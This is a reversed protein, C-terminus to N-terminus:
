RLLYRLGVGLTLVSRQIKLNSNEFTPKTDFWVEGTPVVLWKGQKKIPIEAQFGLLWETNKLQIEEGSSSISVETTLQSEVEKGDPNLLIEKGSIQEFPKYKTNVKSIGLKPILRIINNVDVKYATALTWRTTQVKRKAEISFSRDGAEIESTKPTLKLKGEIKDFYPNMTFDFNIPVGDFLIAIEQESINKNITERHTFWSYDQNFGVQIYFQENLLVGADMGLNLITNIPRSLQRGIIEGNVQQIGEYTVGQLQHSHLSVYPEIRLPHRLNPLEPAIYNLAAIKEPLLKIEQQKIKPLQLESAVIYCANVENGELAIVQPLVKVNEKEVVLSSQKKGTFPTEQAQEVAKEEEKILEEGRFIPLQSNADEPNNMLIEDMVIPVRDEEKELNLDGDWAISKLLFGTLLLSLLLL